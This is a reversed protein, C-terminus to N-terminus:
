IKLRGRSLVLKWPTVVSQCCLYRYIIRETERARCSPTTTSKFMDTVNFKFFNILCVFFFHFM